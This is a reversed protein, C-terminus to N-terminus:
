HTFLLIYLRLRNNDINNNIILIKLQTHSSKSAHCVSVVIKM